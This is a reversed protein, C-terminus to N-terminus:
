EQKHEAADGSCVTDLRRAIDMGLFFEGARFTTGAAIQVLLRLQPTKM